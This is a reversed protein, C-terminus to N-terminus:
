QGSKHVRDAVTERRNLSSTLYAGLYWLKPVVKLEYRGFKGQPPPDCNFTDSRDWILVETKLVNLELGFAQLCSGLLSLLYPIQSPDTLIALIDDAYVGLCPLRIRVPQALFLEPM